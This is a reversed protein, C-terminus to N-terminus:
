KREKEKMSNNECMKFLNFQLFIDTMNVWMKEREEHGKNKEPKLKRRGSSCEIINRSTDTQQCNIREAKTKRPFIKMKKRM